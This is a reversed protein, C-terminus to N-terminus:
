ALATSIPGTLAKSDGIVPTFITSSPLYQYFIAYTNRGAPNTPGYGTFENAPIKITQEAANGVSEVPYDFYKTSENFKGNSDDGKLSVYIRIINTTTLTKSSNQLKIADAGVPIIFDIGDSGVLSELNIM